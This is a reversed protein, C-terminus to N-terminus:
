HRKKPSGKIQTEKASPAEAKRNALAKLTDMYERHEERRREEEEEQQRKAEEKQLKAARQLLEHQAKQEELYQKRAQVKEERLLNALAKRELVREQQKRQTEELLEKSHQRMSSANATLSEALQALPAYHQSKEHQKVTKCIALNCETIDARLKKSEQDLKAQKKRMSAVSKRQEEARKAAEEQAIRRSELQHHRLRSTRDRQASNEEEREQDIVALFESRQERLELMAVDQEEKRKEAAVRRLEEQIERTEKCFAKTELIEQARQEKLHREEAKRAQVQKAFQEERQLIIENMRDRFTRKSAQARKAAAAQDQQKWQFQVRDKERWYEEMTADHLKASASRAADSGLGCTGMGFDSGTTFVHECASQSRM